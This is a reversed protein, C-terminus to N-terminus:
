VNGGRRGPPFLRDAPQLREPSEAPPEFPLLAFDAPEPAPRAPERTLSGTVVGLGAALAALTAAAAVRAGVARPPRAAPRERPVFVPKAPRELPAARVAGTLARIEAAVAACAACRDLHSELLARELESLEGDLELSAWARARECGASRPRHSSSM